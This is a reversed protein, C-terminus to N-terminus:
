SPNVIVTTHNLRRPHSVAALRLRIALVFSWAMLVISAAGIFLGFAVNGEDGQAGAFAFWGVLTSVVVAIPGMWSLRPHGPQSSLPWSPRRLHWDAPRGLLRRWWPPTAAPSAPQTPRTETLM